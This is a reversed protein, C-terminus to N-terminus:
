HTYNEELLHAVYGGVKTTPKNEIKYGQTKLYDCITSTEVNLQKAIKVLRIYNRGQVTYNQGKTPYKADLEPDVVSKLPVLKPQERYAHLTSREYQERYYLDELPSMVSTIDVTAFTFSMFLIDIVGTIIDGRQNTRIAFLSRTALTIENAIMLVSFGYGDRDFLTFSYNGLMAKIKLLSFIHTKESMSLDLYIILLYRYYKHTAYAVSSMMGMKMM